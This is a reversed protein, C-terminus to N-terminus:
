SPCARQHFPGINWAAQYNIDITLCDTVMCLLQYSSVVTNIRKKNARKVTVQLLWFFTLFTGCWTLLFNAKNEVKPRRHRSAKPDLLDGGSRQAVSGTSSGLSNAADHRARLPLGCIGSFLSAPCIINDLNNNKISACKSGVGLLVNIKIRQHLFSTLECM